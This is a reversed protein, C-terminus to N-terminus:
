RSRAAPPVTSCGPAAARRTSASSCTPWAHPLSAAVAPATADAAARWATQYLGAAGHCLGGDTVRALQGPDSLCGVLADEATRRRAADGAAIGALQQARALGPTGYCWSPRLPGPQWTRRRRVDERTVWQPWWPGAPHDQRWVDLWACIEGVAEAQGDIIVGRRAALSLLALPGGIGHAMGLNAHGGPFEPSPRGTPALDTWWGPLSEGDRHLTRTLRVLYSLVGRVPEGHPDRRLLHAGLGTLGHVLDFERLAPPEGRDIRAHAATLRRHTVAVVAADLAALARM